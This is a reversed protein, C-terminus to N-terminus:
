APVGFHQLTNQSFVSEGKRDVVATKEQQVSFRGLKQLARTRAHVVDSSSCELLLRCDRDSYRELVSMVFVFREFPPLMLVGVFEGPLKGVNPLASESVVESSKATPRPKALRIANSIITRRAWSHAWDKFVSNSRQSDQLGRVFCKEALDADGTLLLSLLYLRDMDDNFIRCFDQGTAHLQEAKTSISKARFIRM